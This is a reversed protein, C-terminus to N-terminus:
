KEGYPTAKTGDENMLFLRASRGLFNLGELVNKDDEYIHIEHAINSVCLTTNWEQYLDSLRDAKRKVYDHYSEERTPLKDNWEVSVFSWRAKQSDVECFLEHVREMTPKKHEPLRGTVIVNVNGYWQARNREFWPTPKLYRLMALFEPTLANANKNDLQDWMPNREFMTKDADLLSVQFKNMYDDENIDGVREV